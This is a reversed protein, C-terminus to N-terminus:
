SAFFTTNLQVSTRLESQYKLAILEAKVCSLEQRLLGITDQATTYQNQWYIKQRYDESANPHFILGVM